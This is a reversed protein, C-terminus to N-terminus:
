LDKTLKGGMHFAIVAMCVHEVDDETIQSKENFEDKLRKALVRWIEDNESM